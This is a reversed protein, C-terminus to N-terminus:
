ALRSALASAARELLSREEDEIPARRDGEAEIVGVVLSGRRIPVVIEDASASRLSTTEPMAGRGARLVFRDGDRQYLGVRAYRRGAQLIGAVRECLDDVSGGAKVAEEIRRVLVDPDMLTIEVHLANNFRNFYNFLGIVCAIEVIQDERFHSQLDQFVPDPVQGPGDTMADAFLLAAKQDPPFPHSRPDKLGDLAADSVGLQKAL